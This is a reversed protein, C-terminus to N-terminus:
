ASSSRPGSRTSFGFGGAPSSSRTKAWISGPASRTPTTPAPTRTLATTWSLTQSIQPLDSMFVPTLEVVDAGSPAQAAVPLSFLVSDTYALEVARETPTGKGARFRVNRRIVQIRDDAKRFRWIWDDGGGLPMGALLPRQGMGRAVSIIVILDQELRAAPIEAYLKTEKRYLKLLGAVPTADGLLDKFAAQKSAAASSGASSSGGGGSSSSGTTAAIRADPPAAAEDALIASSLLALLAALLLSTALGTPATPELPSRLLM